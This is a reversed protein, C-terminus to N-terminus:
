FVLYTHQVRAPMKPLKNNKIVKPDLTLLREYRKFTKHMYNSFTFIPDRLKPM